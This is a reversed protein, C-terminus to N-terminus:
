RYRQATPTATRRQVLYRGTVVPVTVLHNHPSGTATAPVTEGEPTVVDVATTDVDTMAMTGIRLTLSPKPIRGDYVISFGDRTVDHISTLTRAVVYSAIDTGNAHWVRKERLYRYLRRLDDLDDVINPTQVQGDPRLPAIHEEIAIL